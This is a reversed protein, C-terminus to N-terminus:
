KPYAGLIPKSFDEGHQRKNIDKTDLCHECFMRDEIYRTHASSGAKAWQSYSYVIYLFVYKHECKNAASLDFGRAKGEAHAEPSDFGYHRIAAEFPTEDPNPVVPRLRTRLDGRTM